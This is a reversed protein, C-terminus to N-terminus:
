SRWCTVLLHLVSCRNSKLQKYSIYCSNSSIQKPTMQMNKRNLYVIPKGPSIDYSVIQKLFHKTNSAM